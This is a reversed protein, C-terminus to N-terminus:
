QVVESIRIQLPEHATPDVVASSGQLDGAAAVPQGSRSIRAEVRVRGASSLTHGPLMSNSDSLEFKMPWDGVTTRLVAVPAGAADVSKAFIFLTAGKAVKSKLEAALSVVGSLMRGSAPEAAPDAPLQHARAQAADGSRGLFEYSRALLEWDDPSGGGRALRARLAAVASAMPQAAPQSSSGMAGGTAGNTRQLATAIESWSQPSVSTERGGAGPANTSHALSPHSTLDPRAQWLHWGLTAGVAALAVAGAHWPLIPLSRFGPVTRLWPLILIIGGLTCVVAAQYGLPAM